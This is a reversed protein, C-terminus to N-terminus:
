EVEMGKARMAAIAAPGKLFNIFTMVADSRPAGVPIGVAVGTYNQLVDPLPGIFEAGRKEVIESIQTMGLAGNGHALTVETVDGGAGFETKPRLEETLGLKEIV